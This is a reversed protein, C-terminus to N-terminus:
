DIGNRFGPLSKWYQFDIHPAKQGLHRLKDFIEHIRVADQIVLAYEIAETMYAHAIVVIGVFKKKSAAPRWCDHGLAVNKFEAHIALGNVRATPRKVEFPKDMRRDVTSSRIYFCNHVAM